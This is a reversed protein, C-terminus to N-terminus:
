RRERFPQLARVDAHPSELYRLAAPLIPPRAAEGCWRQAVVNFTRRRWRSSPRLEFPDPESEASTLHRCRLRASLGGMLADVSLEFRFGLRVRLGRAHMTTLAM